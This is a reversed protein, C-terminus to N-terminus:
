LFVGSFKVTRTKIQKIRQRTSGKTGMKVAVTLSSHKYIFWSSSEGDVAKRTMSALVKERLVM